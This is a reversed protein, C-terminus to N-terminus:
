TKPRRIDLFGDFFDNLLKELLKAPLKELLKDVLKDAAGIEVIRSSAAIRIDVINTVDHASMTPPLGSSIVALTMVGGGNGAAEDSVESGPVSNAALVSFVISESECISLTTRSIAPAM